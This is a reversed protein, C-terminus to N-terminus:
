GDGRSAHQFVSPRRFTGGKWVTEIAQNLEALPRYKQFFGSAGAEMCPVIVEEAGFASAMLVRVRKTARRIRRTAELGSLEPMNLDMLVVDPRLRLARDVAEKGNGAEGVIEINPARKLVDKVLDRFEPHDDCILLRCRRNM